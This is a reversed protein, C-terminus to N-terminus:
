EAWLCSRIAARHDLKAGGNESLQDALSPCRVEADPYSLMPTVRRHIRGFALIFCNGHNQTVLPFVSVTRVRRTRSKPQVLWMAAM